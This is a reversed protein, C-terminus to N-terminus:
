ESALGARWPVTEVDGLLPDVVCAGREPSDAGIM